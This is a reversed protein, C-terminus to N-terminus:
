FDCDLVGDNKISKTIEHFDNFIRIWYVGRLKIKM